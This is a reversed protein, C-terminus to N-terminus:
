SGKVGRQSRSLMIASIETEKMKSGERGKEQGRSNNEDVKENVRAKIQAVRLEKLLPNVGRQSENIYSAKGKKIEEALSALTDEGIVSPWKGLKQTWRDFDEGKNFMVFQAGHLMADKPSVERHCIVSAYELSTYENIRGEETYEPKFSAGSLVYIHGTSKGTEFDKYKDEFGILLPVGNETFGICASCKKLAYAFTGDQPEPRGQGDFVPSGDAYSKTPIGFIREQIGINRQAEARRSADAFAEVIEPHERGYAQIANLENQTEKAFKPFVMEAEPFQAKINEDVAEQFKKPSLHTGHAIYAPATGQWFQRLEEQRRNVARIADKLEQFMNKDDVAM